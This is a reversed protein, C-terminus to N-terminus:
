NLKDSPFFKESTNQAEAKIGFVQLYSFPFCTNEVDSHIDGTNTTTGATQIIYLNKCRHHFDRAVSVPYGPQALLLL